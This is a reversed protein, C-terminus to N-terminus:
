KNKPYCNISVSDDTISAVIERAVPFIDFPLQIRALPNHILMFDNGNQGPNWVLYKASIDSFLMCDFYSILVGSIYDFKKDLFYNTDISKGNSKPFKDQYIRYPAGMKSDSSKLEISNKTDSIPFLCSIDIDMRLPQHYFPIKAMSIALIYGSDKEIYKKYGSEYKNVGKERIAGSLCEKYETIPVQRAKGTIEQLSINMNPKKNASPCTAEVYFKKDRHVFCFDPKSINKEGLEILNIGNNKLQALYNVLTLEWVCSYFEHPLKSAFNSDLYISYQQYLDELYNKAEKHYPYIENKMDIYIQDTGPMAFLAMCTEM